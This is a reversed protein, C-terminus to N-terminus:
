QTRQPTERMQNIVASISQWIKKLAAASVASLTRIQVLVGLSRMLVARIAPDPPRNMMKEISAVIENNSSKLSEIAATLKHVVFSDSSQSSSSSQAPASGTDNYSTIKPNAAEPAGGGGGGFLGDMFGGSSKEEPKLEEKKEPEEEMEDETKGKEASAEAKAKDEDSSDGEDSGGKGKFFKGVFPIHSLLGFLAGKIKKGLNPFLKTILNIPLMFLWKLAAWLGKGIAKIGKWIKDPFKVFVFILAAIAAIILIFPLIPAAMAALWSIVMGLIQFVIPAKIAIILAVLGIGFAIIWAKYKPWLSAILLIAGVLLGWPGFVILGILSAIGIAIAKTKPGAANWFKMWMGWLKAGVGKIFEWIKERLKPYKILLVIFGVIMAILGVLFLWTKAKAKLMGKVISSGLGDFSKKLSKFFGSNDPTKVSAKSKSAINGFQAAFMAKKSEQAAKAKTDSRAAKMEGLMEKLIELIPKGEAFSGGKNITKIRNNSDKLIKNHEIKLTPAFHIGKVHSDQKIKYKNNSKLYQKSKDHIIKQRPRALDKQLISVVKNNSTQVTQDLKSTAVLQKSIPAMASNPLYGFIRSLLLINMSMMKEINKVVKVLGSQSPQSAEKPASKEEKGKANEMEIAKGAGTIGTDATAKEASAEKQVILMDKHQKLIGDMEGKMDDSIM